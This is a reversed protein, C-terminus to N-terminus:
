ESQEEFKLKRHMNNDRAVWGLFAYHAYLNLYMGDSRRLDYKSFGLFEVAVAEFEQRIRESTPMSPRDIFPPNTM